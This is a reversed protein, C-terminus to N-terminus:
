LAAASDPASQAASSREAEEQAEFGPIDHGHAILVPCKAHEAVASSVSGLLLGAFGGHGRSGVVVLAATRSEEILVQAAQGRCTKTEVPCPPNDGFAQVIAEALITEAIEEPHWDVPTYTGFALQFQWVAVATISTGVEPVLRGAWKLALVSSPSGDVGVVIRPEPTASENM